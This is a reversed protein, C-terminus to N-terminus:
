GSAVTNSADDGEAVVAGVVGSSVAGTCVGAPLVDARVECAVLGAQLGGRERAVGANGATRGGAGSSSMAAATASSEVGLADSASSSRGKRSLM